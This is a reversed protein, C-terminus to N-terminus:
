NIYETYLPLAPKYIMRDLHKVFGSWASAGTDGRKIMEFSNLKSDMVDIFHVLMAESTQPLKPSGYELEGHHSLLVHKLHMKCDEPFRPIKQAYAEVLESGKVLHGVLKGEDTYEVNAGGTLEYIKGLDHLIAGAIVFSERLQYHAALIKALQTCSLIHELLGSQYAHHISKGASFVKLPEAITPDQLILLLLDRIYVDELEQVLGLLQGYMDDASFGSKMIFDEDVVDEKQAVSLEVVVLQKRGQYLNIKGLAWVFHGKQISEAMQPANSWVRAELDGSKDSLIINLYKRGDRGENLSIYKVLFISKVDDRVNLDGVFQKLHM